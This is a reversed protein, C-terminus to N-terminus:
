LLKSHECCVELFRELSAGTACLGAAIACLGAGIACFGGGRWFGSVSVALSFRLGGLCPFIRLQELATAAGLFVGPQGCVEFQRRYELFRHTCIEVSQLGCDCRWVLFSWGLALNWFSWRLHWTFGLGLFEVGVGFEVFEVGFRLAL